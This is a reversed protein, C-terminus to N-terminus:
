KTPPRGRARNRVGKSLESFQLYPVAKVGWRVLAPLRELWGSGHAALASAAGSKPEPPRASSQEDFDGQFLRETEKLEISAKAAMQADDQDEVAQLLKEFQAMSVPESVADGSEVQDPCEPESGNDLLSRVEAASWIAEKNDPARASGSAAAVSQENEGNPSLKDARLGLSETTFNGQHVVADDLQRKQLQRRWINEEITHESILRYIHVERTQGIRHARDTAQRDMAPNWDSDYFIVVNASTLNIGVGGARTSCIFLFIRKDANFCDVVSQRREVKVTGDLRVYTFRHYNVFSELVDLMKSFQTFIICKSGDRRFGHLMQGLKALKGSDSELYHKEPLRCSLLGALRSGVDPNSQCVSAVTRHVVAEDREMKRWWALLEPNLQPQLRVHIDPPDLAPQAEHGRHLPARVLRGAQQPSVCVKPVRVAWIGLKCHFNSALDTHVASCLESIATNAVEWLNCRRQRRRGTQAEAEAQRYEGGGNTSAAGRPAQGRPRVGSPRSAFSLTPPDEPSSSTQATDATRLRWRRPRENSALSQRRSLPSGPSLDLGCRACSWDSSSCACSCSSGCTLSLLQLGDAGWFPRGQGFQWCLWDVAGAAARRDKRRLREGRQLRLHSEEFFGAATASIERYQQQQQQQKQLQQQSIERYYMEGPVPSLSAPVPELRPRKCLPGSGSSSRPGRGPVRTALIVECMPLPSSTAKLMSLELRWLGLLPLLISCFNETGPRRGAVARWLSLLVLGPLRLELADTAFPTAALRQEFLEPHNCVKRLQMLISMMGMYNGKKLTHQTERRHMFEDYLVQQRRSLDCYIVHEHKSPMQREVECKLRRLMFPRLVEHLRSLLGQEQDIRQQHVALNLPDSFWEKFEHYSQFVDPMLFHLLSWLETLDNQLPTGTLLLRRVTRFQILQQWKQSRFNKIHQAEDLIMYYWQRRKLPRIDQLAVAYSVICVHFADERHWGQRKLRREEGTGYYALVKLGPAWKKFEKVWNLQVSTPVVILHPGWVEKEVALHALLAITMITKGLGMEDALIGNVGKDHLTALWHLGVHQYERVQNRLLLVPVRTTIQQSLSRRDFDEVAALEQIAVKLRHKAEPDAREEEGEAKKATSADEAVAEEGASEDSPHSEEGDPEAEKEALLQSTVQNSFAESRSVMAELNAMSRQRHEVDSQQAQQHQVARRCGRWFKAIEKAVLAASAKSRRVEENAQQAPGRERGKKQVQAQRVAKKASARRDAGDGHVRAAALRLAAAFDADVDVHRPQEADEAGDLQAM